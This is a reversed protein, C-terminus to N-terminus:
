KRDRMLYFTLAMLQLVAAFGLAILAPSAQRATDRLFLVLSILLCFGAIVQLTGALLKTGSFENFMSQRQIGKLLMIIERLMTEVQEDAPEPETQKQKLSETLVEAIHSSPKQTLDQDPLQDPEKAKTDPPPEQIKSTPESVGSTQKLLGEHRRIINVAEKMNVAKYDPITTEYEPKIYNVATKTQGPTDLLITKCGARCGATIDRHSNGIMWSISLDIDIQKAALLLMGPNPKRLDSERRYKKVNGDPHYPCYYIADLKVGNRELLRELHEHIEKLTQETIIGRAVGSQNTVVVLKYGLRRFQVLAEPIGTMLKIQEPSNIYGPDEVLTKDRDLFIAKYAM